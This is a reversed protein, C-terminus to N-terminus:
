GTGLFLVLSMNCRAWGLGADHSCQAVVEQRRDVLQLVKDEVGNAVVRKIEGLNYARANPGEGKVSVGGTSVLKACTTTPEWDAPLDETRSFM